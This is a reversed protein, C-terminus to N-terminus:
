LGAAIAHNLISSIITDMVCGCCLSLTHALSHTLTHALTHTLTHALSHTLTHALSHTLSHTLLHTLSHILLHTLSHTLSHTLTHALSHILLHTHSHHRVQSTASSEATAAHYAVYGVSWPVESPPASPTTLMSTTCYSM